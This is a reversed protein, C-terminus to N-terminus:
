ANQISRKIAVALYAQLDKLYEMALTYSPKLEQRQESNLMAYMKKLNDRCKVVARITHEDHGFLATYEAPQVEGLNHRIYDMAQNVFALIYVALSIAQPCVRSPARNRIGKIAVKVGEGRQYDEITFPTKLM